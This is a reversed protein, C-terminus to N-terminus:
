KKEKTIKIEYSNNNYKINIIIINNKDISNTKMEIPKNNELDINDIQYNYKNTLKNVYNNLDKKVDKIKRYKFIKIQNDNETYSKFKYLKRYGNIMYISPVKESDIYYYNSRRYRLVSVMNFLQIASFISAIFILTILILKKILNNNM